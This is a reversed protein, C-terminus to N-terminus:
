PYEWVVKDQPKKADFKIYKKAEELTEFEREMSGAPGRVSERVTKWKEGPFRRSQVFFCGYFVDKIVRYKM